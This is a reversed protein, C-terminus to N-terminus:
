NTTVVAGITSTFQQGEYTRLGKQFVDENSLDLRNDIRLVLNPVPAVEATLTLTYLMLDAVDVIYPDDGATARADPDSYVEARLAGAWETNIQYRGAGSLGWWSQGVFGPLREGTVPGSRVNEFGIDANILFSLEPSPNIGLVLDVLHRLGETNSGGTDRALDASAGPLRTTCDLQAPDFTEGAVTCYDEIVAYDEGEPGVLYGLHADFVPADEPTAAPVAVNFQVGFTKGANNDVSNNWGNAILATVWFQDAVDFNGRLGTHFAPQGLWDLVGRTYNYNLQSEAVEAGYITDFKGLDLTVRSDAGGPRWTAYAQKLNELGADSDAGALAGASPGFRLNLTGGFHDGSYDLDLGAWAVGFGNSVDYARFRNRGSQPKPMKFNFSLYTDVFASARLKDYWPVEPLEDPSAPVEPPPQLDISAVPPPELTVGV